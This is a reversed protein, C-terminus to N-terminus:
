DALIVVQRIGCRCVCTGRRQRGIPIRFLAPAFLKEQAKPAQAFRVLDPSILRCPFMHTRRRQSCLPVRKPADVFVSNSPNIHSAIAIWRARKVMADHRPDNSPRGKHFPNKTASARGVVAYPVVHWCPAHSFVRSYSGEHTNIGASPLCQSSKSRKDYRLAKHRRRRIDPDEEPLNVSETRSFMVTEQLLSIRPCWAPAFVEEWGLHLSSSLWRPKSELRDPLRLIFIAKELNGGRPKAWCNAGPPSCGMGERRRRGSDCRRFLPPPRSVFNPAGLASFWLFCKASEWRALRGVDGLSRLSSETTPDTPLLLYACRAM